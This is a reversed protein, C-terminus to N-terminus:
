DANASPQSELETLKDKSNSAPLSLKPEFAIAQTAQIAQVMTHVWNPSARPMDKILSISSILWEHMAKNLLNDQLARADAKFDDGHNVIRIVELIVDDVFEFVRGLAEGSPKPAPPQQTPMGPRQASPEHRSHLTSDDNQEFAARVHQWTQARRFQWYVEQANAPVTFEQKMLKKYHYFGETFFTKISSPISEAGDADLSEELASLAVVLQFPTVTTISSFSLVLKSGATPKDNRM